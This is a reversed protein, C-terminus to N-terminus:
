GGNPFNYKGDDYGCKWTISKTDDYPECKKGANWGDIYQQPIEIPKNMELRLWSDIDFEATVIM